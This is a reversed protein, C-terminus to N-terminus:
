YSSFHIHAFYLLCYTSYIHLCATFNEAGGLLFNGKKKIKNFKKLHHFCFSFHHGLSSSSRLSM